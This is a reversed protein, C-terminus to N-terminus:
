PLSQAQCKCSIPSGSVGARSAAETLSGHHTHSDCFGRCTVLLHGGSRQRGHPRTTVWLPQPLLIPLLAAPTSPLLRPLMEPCAASITPSVHPLVAPHPAAMEGPPSSHRRESLPPHPPPLQLWGASHLGEEGLLAPWLQSRLRPRSLWLCHEPCNTGVTDQAVLTALQHTLRAQASIGEAEELFDELQDRFLFLCSPLVEPPLPLKKQTTELVTKEILRTSVPEVKTLKARTASATPVPVPTTTPVPTLRAATRLASSPFPTM